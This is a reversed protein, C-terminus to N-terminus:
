TSKLAFVAVENEFGQMMVLQHLKDKYTQSISDAEERISSTRRMLNMQANVVFTFHSLFVFFRSSKM